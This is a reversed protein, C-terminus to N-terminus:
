PLMADIAQGCLIAEVEGRPLISEPIKELALDYVDDDLIRGALIDGTRSDLKIFRLHSSCSQSSQSIDTALV